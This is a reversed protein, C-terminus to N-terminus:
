KETQRVKEIIEEFPPCESESQSKILDYLEKAEQMEGTQIYCILLQTNLLPDTEWENIERIEKLQEICPIALSHEGIAQYIHSLHYLTNANENSYKMEPLANFITNAKKSMEIAKIGIALLIEKVHDNADAKLTELEKFFFIKLVYDTITWHM